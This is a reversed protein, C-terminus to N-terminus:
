RFPIQSIAVDVMPEKLEPEFDDGHGDLREVKRSQYGYFSEYGNAALFMKTSDLSHREAGPSLHVARVPLPSPASVVDGWSKAGGTLCIYPMMGFRGPRYRIMSASDVALALRSEQEDKFGPHKAITALTNVLGQAADVVECFADGDDEVQREADLEEIRDLGDRAIQQCSAVDYNVQTWGDSLVKARGARSGVAAQTDALVALPTGTDIGIAFSVADTGAYGRWMTLSDGVSSACAIFRYPSPDGIPPGAYARDGRIMEVNRAASRRNDTVAKALVHDAYDAENRDNM